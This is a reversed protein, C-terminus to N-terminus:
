PVVEIDTRPYRRGNIQVEVAHPGPYIPRTRKPQLDIKHTVALTQHPDLNTNKIRFVKPRLSGNAKHYYVVADILVPQAQDSTSTLNFSLCTTSGVRVRAPEIRTHTVNLAVNPQYGLLEFAGPHGRKLLSRLAHRTLASTEPTDDQWTELLAVVLEAHDKAIDNLNNAVSRRVDESPDHRLAELIPIIPQPHERLTKLGIGWPLRPRTGESALRRVKPDSHKAWQRMRAITTAQDDRLFPRIAFEASELTTLVELADLSAEPDHQGYLEVFDPFSIGAFGADKIHPVAEVLVRLQTHYDGELFDGLTTAVHRIRQKLELNRWQDDFVASMFTDRGFGPLVAAIGDAISGITDRNTLLDKLLPRQDAM